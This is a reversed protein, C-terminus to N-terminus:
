VASSTAAGVAATATSSGKGTGETVNGGEEELLKVLKKEIERIEKKIAKELKEAGEAIEESPLFANELAGKVLTRAQDASNEGRDLSLAASLPNLNNIDSPDMMQLSEFLPSNKVLYNMLGALGSYHSSVNQGSFFDSNEFFNFRGFLYKRALQKAHIHTDVHGQLDSNNGSYFWGSLDEDQEKVLQGYKNYHDVSGHFSEHATTWHQQPWLFGFSRQDIDIDESENVVDHGITGHAEMHIHTHTDGGCFLFWFFSHTTVISEKMTMNIEKGEPTKGTITQEIQIDNPSIKMHQTILENGKKIVIDVYTTNGVTRIDLGVISPLSRLYDIVAKNEVDSLQNELGNLIALLMAVELARNGSEKSVKHALASIDNTQNQTVSASSVTSM